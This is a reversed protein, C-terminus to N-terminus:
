EKGSFTREGLEEVVEAALAGGDRFGLAGEEECLGVEDGPGQGAVGGEAGDPEADGDVEGAVGVGM